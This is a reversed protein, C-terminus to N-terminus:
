GRGSAEVSPSPSGADPTATSDPSDGPGMPEQYVQGRLIRLVWGAQLLDPDYRDSEPDLTRYTERNWYAISRPTTRFRTALSTLSDGRGVVVLEFTPAPTPTPPGPTPAPTPPATPAPTSTPGPIATPRVSVPLCAGLTVILTAALALQRIQRM